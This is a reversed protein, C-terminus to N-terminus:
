WAGLVCLTVFINFAIFIHLLNLGEIDKLLVARNIKDQMTDLTLTPMFFYM